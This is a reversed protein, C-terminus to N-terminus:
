IGKFNELATLATQRVRMNKDNKSISALIKASKANKILALGKLANTMVAEIAPENMKFRDELEQRELMRILIDAGSDDGLRALALASNWRVDAVEDKLGLKLEEVCEKCSLVGLAYASTKRVSESDDKLLSRIAPIGRGSGLSALAWVSHVRVEESADGVGAILADEANTAKFRALALAMYSRTKADYRKPDSFVSIIEKLVADGAVEGSTRNLENSLEFAKQWRKSPSSKKLQAILNEPTDQEHTLLVAACLFVGMGVTIVLPFIFLGFFLKRKPELLPPESSM